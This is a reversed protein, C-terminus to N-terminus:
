KHIVISGGAIAQPAANLDGVGFIGFEMSPM